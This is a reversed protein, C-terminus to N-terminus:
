PLLQPVAGEWVSLCASAMTGKRPGRGVSGCIQCTPARDSVGDVQSVSNTEGQLDGSVRDWAFQPGVWVTLLSKEMHITPRPEHKM